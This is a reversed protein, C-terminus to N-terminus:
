HRRISYRHEPRGTQGYRLQLKVAGIHELQTLYRQATARSIGVQAAIDSASLGASGSGISKYVLQLTPALHEIDPVDRDSPIPRLLEFFGDVEEQGADAPWDTLQAHATRVASLREALAAFGFPKVLYHVVGLRVATRVAAIDAAASIILVMPPRPNDLLIRAVELGDGDPLHIDLLVLDPQLRQAMEIADAATHAKGVVLFGPVMEVFGEHVSAVRFDDDVVLTTLASDSM